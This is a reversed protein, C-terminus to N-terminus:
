ITFISEYKCISMYQLKAIHTQSRENMWRGLETCTSASKLSRKGWDFLSATQLVAMIDFLFKVFLVPSWDRKKKDKKKKDKVKLNRTGNEADIGNEQTIVQSGQMTRSPAATVKDRSPHSSPMYKEAAAMLQRQLFGELMILLSGDVQFIVGSPKASYFIFVDKGAPQQESLGSSVEGIESIEPQVAVKRQRLKEISQRIRATWSLTFVLKFNLVM